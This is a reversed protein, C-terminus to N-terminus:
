ARVNELAHWDAVLENLPMAKSFDIGHVRTLFDRFRAAWPDNSTALVQFTKGPDITEYSIVAFNGMPTREIWVQERSVGAQRMVRDHDPINKLEDNIWSKMKEEGGPLIPAVFCYNSM